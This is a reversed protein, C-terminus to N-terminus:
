GPFYNMVAIFRPGDPARSSLFNSQNCGQALTTVYCVFLKGVLGVCKAVLDQLLAQNCRLGCFGVSFQGRHRSLLHTQSTAEPQFGLKWLDSVKQFKWLHLPRAWNAASPSRLEQALEPIMEVRMRGRCPGAQWAGTAWECRWRALLCCISILAFARTTGRDCWARKAGGDLGLVADVPHGRQDPHDVFQSESPQGRGLVWRTNRKPRAHLM